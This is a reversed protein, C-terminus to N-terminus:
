ADRDITACGGTTLQVGRCVKTLVANPTSVLAPRSTSFGRASALLILFTFLEMTNPMACMKCYTTHLLKQYVVAFHRIYGWKTSYTYLSYDVCAHVQHCKTVAGDEVISLHLPM